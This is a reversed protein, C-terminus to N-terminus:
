LTRSRRALIFSRVCFLVFIFCLIAMLLQEHVATPHAVPLGDSHAKVLDKAVMFGPFLFGFLGVTVAIHMFLKRRSVDKSDALLGCLAIALGFWTPILATPHTSGTIMFFYIGIGTLIAGFYLTFRSM